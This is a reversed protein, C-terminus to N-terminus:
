SDLIKVLQEAPDGMGLHTQVALGGDRLREATRDLYARDGLMEESEAMNLQHYQRAAWGDAVHVLLLEAHCLQALEVIHSMVVADSATNDLAVLIKRYM